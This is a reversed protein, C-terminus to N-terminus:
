TIPFIVPYTKWGAPQETGQWFSLFAHSAPFLPSPLKQIDAWVWSSFVHPELVTPEIDNSDVHAVVGATVCAYDAEVNILFTSVHPAVLTTIGTEEAVERLAAQEFSEGAEIGGGPLCWSEPEGQKTRHGILLAGDPRFILVGVGIVPSPSKKISDNM